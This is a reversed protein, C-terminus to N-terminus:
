LIPLVKRAYKEEYFHILGTNTWYVHVKFRDKMRWLARRINTQIVLKTNDPHPVIPFFPSFIMSFKPGIM